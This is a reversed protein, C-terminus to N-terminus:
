DRQTYCEGRGWVCMVVTSATKTVNLAFVVTCQEGPEETVTEWQTLQSYIGCYKRVMKKVAEEKKQIIQEKQGL